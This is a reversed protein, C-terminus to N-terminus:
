RPSFTAPQDIFGMVAGFSPFMRTASQDIKLEPLRRLISTTLIGAESKGIQAGLCRHCGGSFSFHQHANAREPDIRGGDPFLAPDRNVAAFWAFVREGKAIPLGLLETDQVATRAVGTASPYYRLLEEIANKQFAADNLYREQHEPNELLWILIRSTLAATTDFGGLVLANLMSEAEDDGLPAGDVTGHAL